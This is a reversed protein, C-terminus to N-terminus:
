GSAIQNVAIRRVAQIARWDLSEPAIRNHFLQPLSHLSYSCPLAGRWGGASVASYEFYRHRRIGCLREVQFDKAALHVDVIRLLNDARQQGLSVALNGGDFFGSQDEVVCAGDAILRFLFDEVTQGVVLLQLLLALAESHQAAHRLLFAFFDEIARRMDRM